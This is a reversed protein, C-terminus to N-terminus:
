ERTIPALLEIMAAQDNYRAWGLPTSDFRTDRIQPDAGLGLLTKALPVNGIQATYHLATQWPQDSPIDTRGKANVDFGLEALLEVAAARGTTAAWAILAPRETRVRDALTSDIATADGTLAAAIFAETPTLDPEAALDPILEPHGSTAALVAPTTDDLPAATDVGHALLLRVREAYGHTIAWKLQGRVLETPHPGDARARWPGNTDTGLGFEFLLELHDNDPGFMRNYLTQPDNPDAGASLLLRALARSHPHRPQRIPGLEGEGFVGTLATFPSLMGHWLYGANPDAGTDLLLRAATLVADEDLTPDHRTYTLYCLPPLRFPGDNRNAAAPDEKLVAALAPIDAAAAAAPANGATLGPHEALLAQARTRRAPEDNGYNLCGLTLFTDAVDATEPAQDPYRTYEDVSTM